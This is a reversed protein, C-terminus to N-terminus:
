ILRKLTVCITTITWSALSCLLKKKRRVSEAAGHAGVGERTRGSRKTNTASNLQFCLLRGEAAVIRFKNPFTRTSDLPFRM